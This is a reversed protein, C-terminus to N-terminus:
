RHKELTAELASRLADTETTYTYISRPLTSINQKWTQLDESEIRCFAAVVKDIEEDKIILGINYRSVDVSDCSGARSVIPTEFLCSEYFRNPRAWRLNWDNPGIPQYCGWVLDVGGYLAPLDQPSRYQGLYEVNDYQEVQEPLDAPNMVYGALVIEVDRPREVALAELVRWSWECRLGGFYGIRLPRDILPKGRASQPIGKSATEEVFDSELKNEIVMAPVSAKLWQRYYVDVFAPTTAVLLSCSNVFHKDVMRVLRGKLGSAVQVERIDGIEVVVPKGLGLGAVFAMFAMDAGSAYVIDNRKMARRMAPLASVMKLTRQLYHGHAITGLSEVPCDPMRGTHYDREFAAAEVSFGAHKLMTIRKSDRPHGLLPLVSLIKLSDMNTGSESKM